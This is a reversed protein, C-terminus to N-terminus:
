DVLQTISIVFYDGNGLNKNELSTKTAMTTM